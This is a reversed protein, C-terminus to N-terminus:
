AIAQKLLTIADADDKLAQRFAKVDKNRMDLLEKMDKKTAKIETELGSIEGELERKTNGMRKLADETKKIEHKLDDMENANANQANECRDRHAIDDQEEKRLLAIMEDIMSIVKDFHGGNKVEMAIKAVNMNRFQAAVRKLM